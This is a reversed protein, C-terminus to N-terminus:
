SFHDAQERFVLNVIVMSQDVLVRRVYPLNYEGTEEDLLHSGALHAEGRALAMLGGLSGVNTSSLSADPYRQHLHNSLVDLALDHSGIAIIAKEVKELSTLLEVRVKQGEHLGESESPVRVLGDARVLSMTTGAGRQLPMALFEGSVKGLKVRLFEEQGMTSFVKRTMVAEISTRQPTALGQLRYILPKLFLDFTLAASVPYGPLGALAKGGSTGLVVPHGPRIAVGHVVVQGMEAVLAATFDRRGASAGANLVVIDHEQLARRVTEGLKEFDDPVPNFRMAAAGCEEALSALVLSNSEIIKGPKLTGGLAVLETGTPIIAVRPKRRVAVQSLGAQAMAGLDTPQIIHGAPFLLESAVIDEGMLRVHQWPAVPQMIEIIGDDLVQINEIMVVANFDPPLMTGTDVWQAEQGLRLRVPTKESANDTDQARVAAGDMAAAHYHPSSIRAWVAEATVRHLAQEIPVTERVTLSLAGAKELATLFRDQAEWLPIDELYVQRKGSGM